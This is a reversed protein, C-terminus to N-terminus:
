PREELDEGIHRALKNLLETVEVGAPYHFAVQEMIGCGECIIRYTNGRGDKEIGVRAAEGCWKCQLKSLWKVGM